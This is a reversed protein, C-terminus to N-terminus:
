GAKFRCQLISERSIRISGVIKEGALHGHEMWLRVTRETVGFYESVEYVTFLSKKPLNEDDQKETMNNTM